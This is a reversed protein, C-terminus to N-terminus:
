KTRIEDLDYTKTNFCSNKHIRHFTLIEPINFFEKGESNLRLWMDYDEIGEHRKDWYCINKHKVMFSSNIIPNALFFDENTVIGGPVNPSGSLDGFYQCFSGCVDYKDIIKLQKELKDHRWFDDADLLCTIDHKCDAIMANMTESKGITDYNLVVIRPDTLQNSLIEFFEHRRQGNIGLILKWNTFTQSIVSPISDKLFHLGDHFPIIINIM